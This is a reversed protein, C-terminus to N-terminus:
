PIRAGDALPALEALCVETPGTATHTPRTDPCTHSRTANRGTRARAAELALRTKGVGGPGTLAVLRSGALAPGIRALEPERGVFRTLRAPTETGDRLRHLHLASLAPSPDAGLEDALGRRAEEFVALAEASRGAADLARTPQGYLPEDLPRARLPARLEPM